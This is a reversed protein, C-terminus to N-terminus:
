QSDCLALCLIVLYANTKDGKIAIIIIFLKKLLLNKEKLTKFRYSLFSEIM